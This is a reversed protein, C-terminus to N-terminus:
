RLSSISINRRNSTQVQRNEQIRSHVSSRPQWTGFAVVHRQHKAQGPEACHLERSCTSCVVVFLMHHNDELVHGQRVIRYQAQQIHKVTCAGNRVYGTKQVHVSIQM